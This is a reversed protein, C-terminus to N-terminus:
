VEQSVTDLQRALWLGDSLLMNLLHSSVNEKYSYIIVSNDVVEVSLPWFHAGITRAMVAPILRQVEIARDPSAHIIYRNSFEEPYSEFAGLRVPKLTNLATFLTQQSNTQSKRSDLLIHPVEVPTKLKVELLVWDHSQAIGNAAVTLDQRDTMTVDYEEYTGVMFNSDHHTSSVTLGRIITHEDSHQDVAGFYILGITDAFQKFLRTRKHAGPSNRVFVQKLSHIKQSIAFAM